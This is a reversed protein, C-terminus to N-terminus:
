PIFIGQTAFRTSDPPPPAVGGGGIGTSGGDFVQLTQIEVNGRKRGGAPLEGEGIAHLGTGSPSPETYTDLSAIM